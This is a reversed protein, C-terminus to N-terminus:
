LPLDRRSFVAIGGGIGLAAILVLLGNSVWLNAEGEIIARAKVLTYISFRDIIGYVGEGHGIRAIVSVVFFGVLVAASVGIAKRSEDFACSFFFTFSALAVSLLLVTINLSVFAGLDLAGPHVAASFVVGASTLCVAMVVLSAVLYVAQTTVVARRSNPTSLLYSMAGRDVHSVVLRIPVIAVHLTLFLQVLFGYFYNAAFDTLSTPVTDMGVAASLEPPLAAVSAEIYQMNQEDYMGLILLLYGISVVTFILAIWGNARATTRLLALSM